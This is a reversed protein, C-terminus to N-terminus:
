SVQEMKNFLGFQVMLANDIKSTTYSDCVGVQKIFAEKSVLMSQECLATSNNLLGCDKTIQVHTPLKNKNKTTTPVVHLVGSHNNAMNNSVLIAPRIGRQISNQSFPFEILWIDGRQM